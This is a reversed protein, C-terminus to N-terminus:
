NVQTIYHMGLECALKHKKGYLGTVATYKGHDKLAKLVIILRAMTQMDINEIESMDLEVCKKRSSTGRIMAKCIGSINNRNFDGQLKLICKNDSYRINFLGKSIPKEKKEEVVNKDEVIESLRTGM